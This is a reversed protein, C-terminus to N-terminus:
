ISGSMRKHAVNTTATTTVIVIAIVVAMVAVDAVVLVLELAVTIANVVAKPCNPCVYEMTMDVTTKRLHCFSICFTLFSSKRTEIYPSPAREAWTWISWPGLGFEYSGCLVGKVLMDQPIPFTKRPAKMKTQTHPLDSVKEHIGM